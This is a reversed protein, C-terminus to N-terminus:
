LTFDQELCQLVCSHDLGALTVQATHGSWTWLGPIRPGVMELPRNRAQEIMVPGPAASDDPRVVGVDAIGACGVHHAGTFHIDSLQCTLTM